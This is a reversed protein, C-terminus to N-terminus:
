LEVRWLHASKQISVPRGLMHEILWAMTRLHGTPERVLFASPEESQALYVLAQDATWLDLTAGSQIELLLQEAARRGIKEAAKGREALGDAALVAGERETWLVMAGGTGFAKEGRFAEVAIEPRGLPSLVAVAARAMRAAIECQLNGVHARGLIRRLGGASRLNLGSWRRAPRTRAEVIGGGRPHYGRRLVSLSVQAGLRRLLPILVEGLYDAPPAARVDTGGTVRLTVEDPANLAVPLCAQLVLAISGATGVHFDYTGPTVGRPLFVLERSGPELGRVEARSLAAVARVATLHQAQLGPNVRGARINWMHLPLNRLAAFAVASRLIQGGGEGHSGDLEIV